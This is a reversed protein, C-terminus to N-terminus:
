SIWYGRAFLSLSIALLIFSLLCFVLFVTKSKKLHQALIVYAPFLVLVYRPLSSFSGSLTPIVYGLFLFVAYSIRTKWFSVVSIVLFLSAVAFELIGPFFSAFNSYNLNPLIKFIYRYFVQPLLILNESRQAGFVGVTHLFNLPDGTKQWVFYMYAGIGTMSIFVLLLPLLWKRRDSRWYLFAEVALGAVLALGVLRTATALAALTGAMLWKKQRAYYFSWVTLALFLSETYVSGFYFSTPFVLLLIIALRVMNNDFDLKLLKYFGVLALLFMLYSVAVGTFTVMTLSEGLIPTLSKILLPYLPFYFYTLSRYGEQVLATYHVGDFNSWAWLFPNSLYNFLGGGLFATQPPILKVASFLILFLVGLWVAFVKLIFLHEFKKM